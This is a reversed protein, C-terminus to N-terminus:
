DVAQAFGKSTALSRPGPVHCKGETKEVASVAGYGEEVDMESVRSAMSQLACRPDAKSRVARHTNGRRGAPMVRPARAPM